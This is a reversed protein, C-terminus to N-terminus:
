ASAGRPHPSEGPAPLDEFPHQDIWRTHTRGAVFDPHELLRRHFDITTAVGEVEFRALAARSRRIADARNAGHVILKALLSDYYPTLECGEEVFTDVRLDPGAPPRWREIRGPTPLFGRAPDEANIRWEIAHGSPRPPSAGFSLPEGAAVRLQEAILDVGTVMETVPHEVQIRTNMEIFYCAHGQPDYIFEVTGASTYGMGRALQAASECLAERLEPALIPSPSEEVLKQHRRQVSCDREGLHVVNGHGDALVQVEVHHVTRFYRELYLRPDSFAAQAEASAQQFCAPLDEAHEVVRMGRGGGGGSAKLLLPFGIAEAARAAQAASAVGGGSGPVVPVGNAKASERGAVKDGMTEIAEPSPGIFVTGAEACRRAFGANEALFGYGPHVADCGTALAVHLLADQLLYSRAPPPPGICVVRDALSLYPMARDASSCVMVTQLGAARCARQIRAAIEGRNAILVRQM